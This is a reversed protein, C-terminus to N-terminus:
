PHWCIVKWLLFAYGTPFIWFWNFRTLLWFDIRRFAVGFIPGKDEACNWIIYSIDCVINFLPIRLFIPDSESPWCEYKIVRVICVYAWLFVHRSFIYLGDGRISHCSYTSFIKNWFHNACNDLVPSIILSLKM